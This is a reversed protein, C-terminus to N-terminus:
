AVHDKIRPAHVLTPEEIGKCLTGKMQASGDPEISQMLPSALAPIASLTLVGCRALHGEM